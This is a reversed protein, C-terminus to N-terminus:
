LLFAVVECAASESVTYTRNLIQAGIVDILDRPRSPRYRFNEEFSLFPMGQVSTYITSPVSSLRIGGTDMLGSLAENFSAGRVGCWVLANPFPLRLFRRTDQRQGVLSLTCTM